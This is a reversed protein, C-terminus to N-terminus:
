EGKLWISVTTGHGEESSVDIIGHMSQIIKLSEPIGIGTGSQKTTFFPKWIDEMNKSSIGIGSDEIEVLVSLNGKPSEHLPFEKVTIHLSGGEPMADIANGLINMLAEEFRIPEIMAEVSTLNWNKILKIQAPISIRSLCHEISPLIDQIRLEYDKLETFRQFAHTFVRIQEIESRILEVYESSTRNEPNCQELPELALIVNTIHRRVNHSLRRATEAWALQRNMDEAGAAPPIFLILFQAPFSSRRFMAIGFSREEKGFKVQAQYTLSKNKSKQFHQLPPYLEPFIADLHKRDLLINPEMYKVIMTELFRNIMVIRNKGRVHIMGFDLTNDIRRFVKIQKTHAYWGGFLLILLVGIIWLSYSEITNLLLVYFPYPEFSYYGTQRPSSIVLLRPKGFGNGTSTMYVGEEGPFPNKIRARVRFNHDLIEFHDDNTQMLFGKFGDNNGDVSGWLYKPSNKYHHKVPDLNEDLVILGSAQDILTIRKTGSRDVVHLLGDPAMRQMTSPISFSKLKSFRKGNYRMLSIYNEVEMSGWTNVNCYIEYIGDQDNDSIALNAASYGAAVKEIFEMRGYRDIVGVYSNFDDTQNLPETRNKFAITGFIFEKDGDGDLDAFHLSNVTTAMRYYWKLAGSKLDYVIIGRPNAQFGSHATCVLEYDGDGDVDEIMLPVIVAAYEGKPNDSEQFVRDIPTYRRDERIPVPKWDYHSAQLYNRQGDNFSYYIWARDDDPDEMVKLNRIPYGLNIQALAKGKSDLTLIGNYGTRFPEVYIIEDIKDNDVDAFVKLAANSDNTIVQREVFRHSLVKEYIRCASICFLILM